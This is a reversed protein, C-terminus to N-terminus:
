HQVETLAIRDKVTTRDRRRVVALGAFTIYLDGRSRIEAPLTNGIGVVDRLTPPQGDSPRIQTLGCLLQGLTSGLLAPLIVLQLPMLTWFATAMAAEHSTGDLLVAAALGLAPTLFMILVVDLATATAKRLDRPSPYRPDGEAGHYEPPTTPDHHTTPDTRYAALDRTRVVVLHPALTHIGRIRFPHKPHRIMARAIDRIRPRTADACRVVTLGCLLQGISAGAISPLLFFQAFVLFLLIPYGILTEAPGSDLEAILLWLVGFTAALISVM